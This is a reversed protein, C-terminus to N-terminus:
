KYTPRPLLHVDANAFPLIWQFIGKFHGTSIWQCLSLGESFALPLTCVRKSAGHPPAV